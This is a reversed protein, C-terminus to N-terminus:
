LALQRRHGVMDLFAELRTVIGAEGTHEDVTVRLYPVGPYQKVRQQIIEGTMSDLGCAFSAVHIIGVASPDELFSFTSGVMRWGLTWFLKKPLAAAYHAVRQAPVNDPTKISYGQKQLRDIINMSIFRDYIIYPHGVVAIYPQGDASSNKKGAMAEGPLSGSELLDIYKKQERMASQFAFYIQHPRKGLEKGAQSFASYIDGQRRYQDINPSLVPPLGPINQKVMDPFGLFKPCIYEGASVSVLRPLFIYDMQLLTAVHGFALKVPLCAEDVCHKLGRELIAKTTVESVEVTAGLRSFFARWMPLYYYYLLARPIGIKLTM